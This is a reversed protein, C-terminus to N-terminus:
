CQTIWSHLFLDLTFHDFKICQFPHLTFIGAPWGIRRENWWHWAMTRQNSYVNQLNAVTYSPLRTQLSYNHNKFVQLYTLVVVLMPSPVSVLIGIADHCPPACIAFCNYSFLAICPLWKWQIPCLIVCWPSSNSALNIGKTGHSTM